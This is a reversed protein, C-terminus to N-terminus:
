DKDSSYLCLDSGDAKRKMIRMLIANGDVDSAKTYIAATKTEDLRQAEGKGNAYFLSGDDSEKILFLDDIENEQVYDGARALGIVDDSDVIADAFDSPKAAQWRKQSLWGDAVLDLVFPKKKIRVYRKMKRRGESGVESFPAEFALDDDAFRIEV